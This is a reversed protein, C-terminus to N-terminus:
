LVEVLSAATARSIGVYLHRLTMNTSETELRVVGKLTLAQCSAYTLAYPLRLSRVADQHTLKLGGILEVSDETLNEVTYFLGKLVKGGAGVLQQGSWLWLSQPNNGARTPIPARIFIAGVRPKLLMNMKLNIMVRRRHSMTLVYDAQRTTVPFLQRAEILAEQLDRADEEGCRLSTYFHFLKADSRKNETLILRNGNCMDKLMDSRELAGDATPCGAWSECIAKYQAHDGCCIFQTGKFKVLSLDAWLQVNIMSLEEIVLVDCQVSGARVHRRVWHDATVADCGLNQVAVHTKAVADVRKGAEILRVILKRLFYTKGVGPSGLILLSEGKMVKDIAEDQNLDRFNQLHVPADCSRSPVKYNGQLDTADTEFRFVLDESDCGQPLVGLNDDLSLQDPAVKDYKRKLSPLDRFTTKTVDELLKRHKKAIGSLVLCDTKISSICRVPVKLRKVIFCLQAVRTAETHMILDHIPRMTANAIVRSQYIHDHTAEDKGYPVVRHMFAGEADSSSSSTKVHYTWNNQSAWLGVMSNISYKGLTKNSGWADEMILLPKALVHSPVHATAQLSLKCDLWTCIGHSLMFEVAVRHYWMPGVYPILSLATRKGNKLEVFTYDCLLGDISKTVNDFPSFVPFDHSSYALANRRCRRVDLEVKEIDDTSEHPQWVLAPPRPTAIYADWTPKSFVSMVTRDQRGELQTKDMHCSACLAQFKQETGEVIQRLPVIHDWEVDYDFIGGCEVCKNDQMELIELKLEANPTRREARLLEFFVKQTLSPLREGSWVIERPLNRLWHQIQDADQISERIVCTHKGVPISLGGIESSGRLIVKPNIGQELLQRRTFTLDTTFFHGAEVVGSWFKWEDFPPNSSRIDHQLVVRQNKTPEISVHWGSLVRASRYFYIHSDFAIAALCRGRKQTPQHLHILKGGSIFMFPHGRLACWDKLEEACIGESRWDSSGLLEDFSDAIVELSKQLLVALQRPVCLKDDHSEFAEAIIHEHLPLQAAANRLCGLKERMRADTSVKGESDVQTSLSSITWEGDKDIQYSEGSVEMVTQRSNYDTGNGNSLLNSLVKRKVEKLKDADSLSSSIMIQGIGLQDVPLTSKRSYTKSNARKGNIQVPIHVVFETYKDKFFRKGLATLVSRGDPLLTRVKQEKGSAVRVYDSPGRHILPQNRDFGSTDPLAESTKDYYYRGAATLNAFADAVVVYSSNRKTKEENLVQKGLLDRRQNLPLITQSGRRRTVQGAAVAIDIMRNTQISKSM